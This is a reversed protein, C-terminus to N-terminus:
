GHADSGTAAALGREELIDILDVLAGVDPLVVLKAGEDLHLLNGGKVGGLKREPADILLLVRVDLNAPGDGALEHRSEGSALALHEHELENVLAGLVGRVEEDAKVLREGTDSIVEEGVDHAANLLHPLVVVQEEDGVVVDVGELRRSVVDDGDRGDVPGGDLDVVLLSHGADKGEVGDRVTVVVLVRGLLASELEEKVDLDGGGSAETADQAEGDEGHGPEEEGM